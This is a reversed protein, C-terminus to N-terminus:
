QLELNRDVMSLTMNVRKYLSNMNHASKQRARFHRFLGTPPPASPRVVPVSGKNLSLRVTGRTLNVSAWVQAM